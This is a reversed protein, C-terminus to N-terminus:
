ARMSGQVARDIGDSADYFRHGRPGAGRSEPAWRPACRRAPLVYRSVYRGIASGSVCGGQMPFVDDSATIAALHLAANVASTGATMGAWFWLEFDQLPDFRGRLSELRAIKELHSGVNM